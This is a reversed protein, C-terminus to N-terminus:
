TVLEATHVHGPLRRGLVDAVWHAVGILKELDVGTDIGERHLMYILDETAVNGTAGPAFPCGGIGGVAADLVTAGHEVAVFANLVATNRTDHLHVGVPVGFGALAGVLRRVQGPAAVGITDALMLEDPVLDLMRGALELVASEAVRGEFPCGFAVMLTISVRLGDAKARKAIRAALESGDVRSCNCNRRSFSETCAVAVRVEDLETTRLREYGRENLVLGSYAVGPSRNVLGVVAEALAMAPVRSPDVFSTVEIRPLGTSALRDILEARLAPALVHGESQLGDRPAVECIALNM